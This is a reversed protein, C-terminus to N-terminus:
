LSRWISLYESLELYLLTLVQLLSTTEDKSLSLRVQPLTAVATRIPAQSTIEASLCGEAGVVQQNWYPQEAALWGPLGGQQTTSLVHSLHNCWGAFSLSAPKGEFVEKESIGQCLQQYTTLLDSLLLRWSVVDIVLHHISLLVYLPVTSGKEMHLVTVNVPNALTVEHQARDCQQQLALTPINEREVVKLGTSV